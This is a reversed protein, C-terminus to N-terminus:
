KNRRYEWSQKENGAKWYEGLLVVSHVYVYYGYQESMISMWYQNVRTSHWHLTQTNHYLKFGPLKNCCEYISTSILNFLTINVALYCGRNWTIQMVMYRGMAWQHTFFLETQIYMHHWNIYIYIYIYAQQWTRNIWIHIMIKGCLSTPRGVIKWSILEVTELRNNWEDGSGFNEPIWYLLLKVAPNVILPYPFNHLLFYWSHDIYPESFLIFLKVQFYITSGM